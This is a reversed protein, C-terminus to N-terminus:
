RKKDRIGRNYIESCLKNEKCERDYRGYTTYRHSKKM